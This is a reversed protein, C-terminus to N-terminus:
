EEDLDPLPTGTDEAEVLIESREYGSVLLEHWQDPLLALVDAEGGTGTSTVTSYLENYVIHYQPSVYGTRQNLIKGVTSSHQTSFGLFQGRRACSVWKPLKKGDQLKPDLIFVPCGWV